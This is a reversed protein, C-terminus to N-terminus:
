LTMTMPDSSKLMDWVVDDEDRRPEEAGRRLPAVLGRPGAARPGGVGAPGQRRRRGDPAAPAHEDPRRLDEAPHKRAEGQASRHGRARVRLRRDRPGPGQAQVGPGPAADRADGAGAAAGRRGGPSGPLGEADEEDGGKGLEYGGGCTGPRALLSCEAGVWAAITVVGLFAMGLQAATHTDTGRAGLAEVAVTSGVFGAVLGVWGAAAPGLRSAMAKAYGVAQSAM